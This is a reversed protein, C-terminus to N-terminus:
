QEGETKLWAAVDMQKDTWPYAGHKRFFDGNIITYDHEVHKLIKGDRIKRVIDLDRNDQFSLGDKSKLMDIATRYMEDLDADDQVLDCVGCDRDCNGNINRLICQHEIELLGIVRELTM